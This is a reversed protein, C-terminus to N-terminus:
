AYSRKTPLDEPINIRVPPSSPTLEKMKEQIHTGITDNTDEVLSKMDQAFENLQSNMAERVIENIANEEMEEVMYAAARVANAVHRSIGATKSIQHLCYSMSTITLPERAPCLLLTKELYRRADISNHVDDKSLTPTVTTGKKKTEQRTTPKSTNGSRVTPETTKASVTPSSEGSSSVPM